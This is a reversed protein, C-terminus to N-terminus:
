LMSTSHPPLNVLLNRFTFETFYHTHEEWVMTFDCSSLSRKCDPIEWIIYGNDDILEKAANIFENIDMGGVCVTRVYRGRGCRGEKLMEYKLILNENTQRAEDLLIQLESSASGCDQNEGEAGNSLGIVGAVMLLGIFRM